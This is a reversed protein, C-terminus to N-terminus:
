ASLRSPDVKTLVEEDNYNPVLFDEVIASSKKFLVQKM